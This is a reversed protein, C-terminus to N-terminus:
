AIFTRVGKALRRQWGEKGAKKVLRKQWGKRKLYFLRDNVVSMHYIWSSCFMNIVYVDHLNNM